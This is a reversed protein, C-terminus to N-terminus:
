EAGLRGAAGDLQIGVAASLRQDASANRRRGGQGLYRRRPSASSTSKRAPSLPRNSLTMGNPRGINALLEEPPAEKWEWLGDVDTLRPANDFEFYDFRGRWQQFYINAKPIPHGEEDLVRVRITNGPKLRFDIPGLGLAIDVEQLDPPAGEGIGRDQRQWARLGGLPLGGTQRHLAAPTTTSAKTRVLMKAIPKGGDDTVKGTVTM